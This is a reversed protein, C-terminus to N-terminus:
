VICFKKAVDSTPENCNTYLTKFEKVQGLAGGFM